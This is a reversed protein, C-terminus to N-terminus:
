VEQLIDIEDQVARVSHSGSKGAHVFLNITAYTLFPRSRFFTYWDDTEDQSPMDQPMKVM